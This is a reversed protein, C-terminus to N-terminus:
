EYIDLIDVIQYRLMRTTMNSGFEYIYSQIEEEYKYEKSNKKDIFARKLSINRDKFKNEIYNLLGSKYINMATFARNHVHKHVDRMKGTIVSKTIKDDRKNTRCKKFVYMSEGYTYNDRYNEQMIGEPHYRTESNAAKMLQIFKDDINLTIGSKLKVKKNEEDLNSLKLNAIDDFEKGMVGSYIAYVLFQLTSDDSLKEVYEHMKEKKFVKNELIEKTIVEDIIPKSIKIDYYNIINTNDIIGEKICWSYYSSFHSSALTLYQKSKSNMGKFLRIIQVRNFCSLDMGEQIEIREARRFLIEITKKTSEEYAVEPDNLYNQKRKRGENIDYM